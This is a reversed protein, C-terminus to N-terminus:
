ERLGLKQLKYALIRRTIGLLEAAKAHVGDARRLAQALMNRELTAVADPLSVGDGGFTAM